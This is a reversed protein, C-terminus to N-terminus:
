GFLFQIVLSLGAAGTGVLTALHVRGETYLDYAILPTVMLGMGISNHWPGLLYGMRSTAAFVLMITAFVMYRKHAAPRSRYFLGLGLLGAFLLLAMWSQMTRLLIQPWEAWTFHGEAVAAEAQVYTILSGALILVVALAPGGYGGLAMHTQTQDRAVLTTQALFFAVWGVFVAAHLHVVWDTEVVGAGSIEQGLVLQRGYTSGFGLVVMVILFVAMGVWFLRPFSASGTERAASAQTSSGDM